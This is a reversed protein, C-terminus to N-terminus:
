LGRATPRARKVCDWADWACPPRRRTTVTEMFAGVTSTATWVTAPRMLSTNIIKNTDPPADCGSGSNTVEINAECSKQDTFKPDSCVGNTWTSNERRYVQSCTTKKMCSGNEVPM